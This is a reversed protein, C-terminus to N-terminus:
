GTTRTREPGRAPRDPRARRVRRDRRPQGALQPLTRDRAKYPARLDGVLIGPSSCPWSGPATPSPPWRRLHRRRGALTQLPYLAGNPLPMRRMLLSLLDAAPRLRGRAGLVMQLAFEAIGAGRRALRRVAATALLAAMLPSASRTTPAPSARSCPAPGAPSRAAAWCRSSWPPTPPHSPWASSCRPGGTSASSSHALLAVGAATVLPGSSASGRAGRRRRGPVPALRHAHRRRVAAPDADGDRGAPGHHGAPRRSRARTHSAVAAAVLFIAPAPVRIRESLRNSWVALLGAVSVVGVLLAFPVVDTM